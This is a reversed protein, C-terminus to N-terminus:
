QLQLPATDQTRTKILKKNGADFFINKRFYVPQILKSIFDPLTEYSITNENKLPYKSLFLIAQIIPNRDEWVLKPSEWITKPFDWIMKPSEWIAKPFDWIMKPSESITKPFDWITKPSESITKPFDWITKPSESIAKPSDWITKPSEWFQKQFCCIKIQLHL